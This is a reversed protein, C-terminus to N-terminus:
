VRLSRQNTLRSCRPFARTTVTPCLSVMAALAAAATGARATAVKMSPSAKTDGSILKVEAEAAAAAAAAAIGEAAVPLDTGSRGAEAVAVGAPM